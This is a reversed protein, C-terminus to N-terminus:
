SHLRIYERVFSEFEDSIRSLMKTGVQFDHDGMSRVPVIKRATGTLFCSEYDGASKAPISTYNVPIGHLACVEIVKKRTIGPLVLEDGATYVEGGNIFFVNSRSAETIRGESNILIVEYAGTMKMLEVSRNRLGVNWMKLNPTKRIETMFVTRVGSKYERPAPLHPKMLFAYFFSNEGAGFVLKVPGSTHNNVLSLQRVAEAIEGAPFPLEKNLLLFSNRLRRMYDEFFLPIGEEIRIVEYVTPNKETLEAFPGFAEVDLVKGDGIFKKGLLESMELYIIWPM